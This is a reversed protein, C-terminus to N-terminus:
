AKHLIHSGKAGSSVGAKSYTTANGGGIQGRLIALANDNFRKKLNVTAGNAENLRRCSEAINLLASWEPFLNGSTDSNKIFDVLGNEPDTYNHSQALTTLQNQVAAMQRAQKEKESLITMLAESEGDVLAQQEQELLTLLEKANILQQTILGAIQSELTMDHM